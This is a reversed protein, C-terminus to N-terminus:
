LRKVWIILFKYEKTPAISYRSIYYKEAAVIRFNKLRVSISKRYLKNEKEARTYNIDSYMRAYISKAYGITM